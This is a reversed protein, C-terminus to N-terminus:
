QRKKKPKPPMTKLKGSPSLRTLLAKIGASDRVSIESGTPGPEADTHRELRAREMDAMTDLEWPTLRIDALTCWALLDSPALVQPGAYGMQRWKSLRWYIDWLYVGAEPVEVPPVYNGQNESKQRPTVGAKDPTDWHM